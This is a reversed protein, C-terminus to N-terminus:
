YFEKRLDSRLSDMTVGPLVQELRAMIEKPHAVKDNNGNTPNSDIELCIKTLENAEYLEMGGKDPYKQRRFNYAGEGIKERAIRLFPLWIDGTHTGFMFFCRDGRYQFIRGILYRDYGKPFKEKDKFDRRYLERAYIELDSKPPAYFCGSLSLYALGVLTLDKLKSFFDKKGLM